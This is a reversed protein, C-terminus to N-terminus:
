KAKKKTLGHRKAHKFAQDLVARMKDPSQIGAKPKPEPPMFDEPKSARSRKGRNVNAITAAIM